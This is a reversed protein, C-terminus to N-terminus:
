KPEPIKQLVEPMWIDIMINALCTTSHFRYLVALPLTTFLAINWPLEGYYTVMIESARTEKAVFSSLMWLSLNVQFLVIALSPAQTSKEWMPQSGRQMADMLFLFQVTSQIYNLISEFTGLTAMRGLDGAWNFANLEPMTELGVYLYFGFLTATLVAQDIFSRVHGRFPIDTMYLGLLMVAIIGIINLVIQWIYFLDLLAGTIAQGTSEARVTYYITLIVSTFFLSTGVISGPWGRGRTIKIKDWLPFFKADLMENTVPMGVQEYFKYIAAATLIVYQVIFPFIYPVLQTSLHSTDYM